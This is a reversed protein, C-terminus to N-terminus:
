VPILAWEMFFCPFSQYRLRGLFFWKNQDSYLAHDFWLGYQNELTYFTFGSVESLRNSTDRKAYYVYLSSLGIEWSTEPAFALTPYVLFRPEAVDGTDNLLSYLYRRFIGPEEKDQGSVMLSFLLLIGAFHVKM